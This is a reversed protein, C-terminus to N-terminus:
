ASTAPTALAARVRAMVAAVKICDNATLVATCEHLTDHVEQLLVRVDVPVEPPAQTSVPATLVARYRASAMWVTFHHSASSPVTEAPITRAWWSAFAPYEVKADVAFARSRDQDGFWDNGLGDDVAVLEGIWDSM